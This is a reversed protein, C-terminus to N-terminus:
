RLGPFDRGRPFHGQRIAKRAYDQVSKPLDTGRALLQRAAQLRKAESEGPLSWGRLISREAERKLGEAVAKASEAELVLSTCRCRPHFPPKETTGAKSLCTLCGDREAKVIATLDPSQDAVARLGENASANTIWRSALSANNIGSTGVYVANKVEEKDKAARLMRKGADVRKVVAVAANTAAEIIEEPLEPDKFSEAPIGVRGAASIGKKTGYQLAEVASAVLVRELKGAYQTAESLRVEITRIAIVKELDSAKDGPWLEDVLALILALLKRLPKVAKAELREEMKVMLAADREWQPLESAPLTM